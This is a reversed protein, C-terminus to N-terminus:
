MASCRSTGIAGRGYGKDAQGLRGLDAAPTARLRDIVANALTPTNAKVTMLYHAWPRPDGYVNIARVM